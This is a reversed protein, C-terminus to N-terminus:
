VLKINFSACHPRSYLHHRSPSHYNSVRYRSRMFFLSRQQGILSSLCKVLFLKNATHFCRQASLDYALIAGCSTATQSTMIFRGRDLMSCQVHGLFLQSKNSPQRMHASCPNSCRSVPSSHYSCRCVYKQLVPMLCNVHLGRRLRRGRFEGPTSTTPSADWFSIRWGDDRRRKRAPFQGRRLPVHPWVQVRPPPQARPTSTKSSRHAASSTTEIGAEWCFAWVPLHPGPGPWWRYTCLSTM